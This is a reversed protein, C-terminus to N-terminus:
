ASRGTRGKLKAKKSAAKLLALQIRLAHELRRDHIEAAVRLQRLAELLTNWPDSENEM